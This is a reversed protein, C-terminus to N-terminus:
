LGAARSKDQLNWLHAANPRRLFMGSHCIMWLVQKPVAKGTAPMLTGAKSPKHTQLVRTCAQSPKKSLVLCLAWCSAQTAEAPIKDRKWRGVRGDGLCQRVSSQRITCTMHAPEEATKDAAQRKQQSSRFEKLADHEGSDHPCKVQTPASVPLPTQLCHM